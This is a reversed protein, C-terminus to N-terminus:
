SLRTRTFSVTVLLQYLTVVRTSSESILLVPPTVSYYSSATCQAAYRGLARTGCNYRGLARTGCHWHVSATPRHDHSDAM